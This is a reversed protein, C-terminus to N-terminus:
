PQPRATSEVVPFSLAAERVRLAGPHDPQVALVAEANELACERRRTLACAVARITLERLRLSPDSAYLVQVDPERYAGRRWRAASEPIGSERLADAVAAAIRQHARLNPHVFDVFWDDGV